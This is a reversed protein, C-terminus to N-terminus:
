STTRHQAIDIDGIFTVAANNVLVDLRGFEAVTTDVM